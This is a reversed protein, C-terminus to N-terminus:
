TPLIFFGGRSGPRYIEPLLQVFKIFFSRAQRIAESRLNRLSDLFDQAYSMWVSRCTWCSIKCDWKIVFHHGFTKHFSMRRRRKTFLLELLSLSTHNIIHVRRRRQVLWDHVEELEWLKIQKSQGKIVNLRCSVVTFVRKTCYGCNKWGLDPPSFQTPSNTAPARFEDLEPSRMIYFPLLNLVM